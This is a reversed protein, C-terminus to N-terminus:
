ADYSWYIRKYGGEYYAHRGEIKVVGDRVLELFKRRGEKSFSWTDGDWCGNVAKKTIGLKEARHTVADAPWKLVAGVQQATWYRPSRSKKTTPEPKPFEQVTAYRYAERNIAERESKDSVQLALRQLVEAVRVRVNLPEQAQEAGPITYSGTKRITPLVEHTVWRTFQKAESKNSRFILRYLGPENIVNYSQAGGRQGSHGESFDLTMKEDDDLSKIADTTNKIELVDCVDKAVFWVEGDREVTRVQRDKYSFVQLANTM